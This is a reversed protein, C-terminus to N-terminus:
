NANEQWLSELNYFDRTDALMTHVIFDGLDILAWEGNELGSYHLVPLGHNKMQEMVQNAIAKVHRSSRGTCIIMYDTITTQKSVNIVKIDLAHADDLSKLLTPLLENQHSM